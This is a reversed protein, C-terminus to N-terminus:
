VPANPPTKAPPPPASPRPPVNAAMAATTLHVVRYGLELVHKCQDADPTLKAYRVFDSENAFRALDDM